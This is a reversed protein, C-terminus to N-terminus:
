CCLVGALLPNASLLEDVDVDLNINTLGRSALAAARARVDLLVPNDPAADLSILLRALNLVRRDERAARPSFVDRPTMVPQAPVTMGVPADGLFFQITEGTLYRFLGQESTEGSQSPTRYTLGQVAADIFRGELVIQESSGSGSERSSNGCGFLFVALLVSLLAARFRRICAM